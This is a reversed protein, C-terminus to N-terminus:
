VCGTRLQAQRWGAQAMRVAREGTARADSATANGQLSRALIGQLIAAMRFMNFAMLYDMVEASVPRAAGGAGALYRDLHTKEEPIGLAVLDYGLIGRFEDPKVRWAMLHYALDALPHGLTSLEWDIVALVRPETPHYILNDIRFDGHLLTGPDDDLGPPLNAPLWEILREMAELKDTESARYQRTWRDIQRSLYQLPRGLDKLGVAAVDVSHIAALTQAQARYIADREAPQMCPLSADAFVRGDVHEMVVFTSGIVSADECLAYMQPVPVATDALAAMIRYERDVAHASALLVGPPKRRLVWCHSGAEVRYTPNSQGGTLQQLQVGGRFDAVHTRLWDGLQAIEPTNM